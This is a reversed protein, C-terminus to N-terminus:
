TLIYRKGFHFIDQVRKTFNKRMDLHSIKYYEKFVADKSQYLIISSKSLVGSHIQPSTPDM